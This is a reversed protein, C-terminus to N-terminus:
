YLFVLPPTNNNKKKKDTQRIPGKFHIPTETWESHLLDIDM